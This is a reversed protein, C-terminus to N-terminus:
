QTTQMVAHLDSSVARTAAEGIFKKLLSSNLAVQYAVDFSRHILDHRNMYELFDSLGQAAIRQESKLYDVWLPLLTPQRLAIQIRNLLEPIALHIIEQVRGQTSENLKSFLEHVASLSNMASNMLQKTEDFKQPGQASLFTRKLKAPIKGQDIFQVYNMAQEIVSLDTYVGQYSGRLANKLEQQSEMQETLFIVEETMLKLDELSSMLVPPHVKLQNVHHQLVRYDSLREKEKQLTDAFTRENLFEESSLRKELESVRLENVLSLFCKLQDETASFMFEAIKQGFENEQVHLQSRVQAAWLNVELASNFDTDLGEFLQGFTKQMEIHTDFSKVQELYSVWSMLLSAMTKPSQKRAKEQAPALYSRYTKLADRYSKKFVRLVGANKFESALEKLEQPTVLAHIQFQAQLRERAELLPQAQAQWMQIKALQSSAILESNRWGMLQDPINRIMQAAQFIQRFEQPHKALPFGTEEEVASAFSQIATVHDVLDQCQHIREGLQVQDLGQLQHKRSLEAAQNLLNFGTHIQSPQLYEISQLTAIKDTLARVCRVNRMFDFLLRRTEAQTLAPIVRPQVMLEKWSKSKQIWRFIEEIEEISVDQFANLFLPFSQVEVWFKSLQIYAFRISRIFVEAEDLKQDPHALGRWPHDVRESDKGVVQNRLSQFRQLEGLNENLEIAAVDECSKIEFGEMEKSIEKYKEQAALYESIIQHLTKGTKGIRTQLHFVYQNLHQNLSQSQREQDM